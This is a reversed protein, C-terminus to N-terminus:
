GVWGVQVLDRESERMKEALFDFNKQEKELRRITKLYEVPLSITSSTDICECQSSSAYTTSIASVPLPSVSYRLISLYCLLLPICCWGDGRAGKLTYKSLISRFGDVESPGAATYGVGKASRCRCCVTTLSAYM